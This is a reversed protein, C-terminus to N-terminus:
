LSKIIDFQSNISTWLQPYYFMLNWIGSGKLSFDRVIDNIGVISRVDIFWVIHEMPIGIIQNYYFYPTQSAEDFQITAGTEYALEFVANITMSTAVSRGPIYPLLWDYGFIPNGVMLKDAPASKTVHDILLRIHNINSIPAPPDYNAGWLFKLFIIEDVYSSLTAYDIPELTIDGNSVQLDYNITLLFLFGEQHLRSAIRRVFNIYLAQNNSNLFNFVMNIGRYGKSKLIEMFQNIHRDQFEENLLINYAIEVNPEGLQTSTTIMLLPVVGYELATSILETDDRYQVIEGDESATYNFVSLYTLNPLVKLLVERKIFAFVYGNTTVNGITNYSIILTEGPIIYERDSLFSNNRLIQMVSVQYLDAIGQLSDGEQVIHTQKPYAIILAQGIILRVPSSFGNDYTLREASVGFREAISEITDGEQVVYIEM